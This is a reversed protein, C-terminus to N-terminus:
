LVFGDGITFDVHCLITTDRLPYLEHHLFDIRCPKYMTSHSSNAPLPRDDYAGESGFSQAPDQNCGSTLLAAQQDAGVV